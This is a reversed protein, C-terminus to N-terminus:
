VEFFHSFRQRLQVPQKISLARRTTLRRTSKASAGALQQQQLHQQNTLQLQQCTLLLQRNTLLLMQRCLQSHASTSRTVRRDDRTETPEILNGYFAWQDLLQEHHELEIETTSEETPQQDGPTPPIPKSTSPMFNIWKKNPHKHLKEDLM